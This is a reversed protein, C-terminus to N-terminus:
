LEGKRLATIQGVVNFCWYGASIEEGLLAHFM